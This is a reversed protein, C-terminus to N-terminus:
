EKITEPVLNKNNYVTIIVTFLIIILLHILYEGIKGIDETSGQVERLVVFENHPYEIM